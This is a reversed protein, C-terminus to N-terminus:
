LTYEVESIDKYGEPVKVEIDINFEIGYTGKYHRGGYHKIDATEPTIHPFDKKVEDFLEQLHALNSGYTNSRVVIRHQYMSVPQTQKEPTYRLIEKIITM